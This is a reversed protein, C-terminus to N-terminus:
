QEAARRIPVVSTTAVRRKVAHEPPVSSVIVAGSAVQVGEGIVVHPEIFIGTGLRARDGITVLGSTMCGPGTAIDSGLVNHHDFSNYASLFNNDGVRTGVGFHCFACILNGHGLAVEPAIVATRDVANTLPIGLEGCLERLRTRAPVSTGICILASDLRGGAHLESLRQPGGVVPVGAVELGWTARDEDVIAVATQSTGTFIGIAQTAGLGAGILAVREAGIPADLPAPLNRPSPEAPRGRAGAEEVMKVTILGRGALPTLDIGLEEARRIAPATARVGDVKTSAAQAAADARRAAFGDLADLSEFLYAVAGSLLIEDGERACRLLYGAEPAVVDVVAKSTEVEALLDGAEVRTRDEFHWATVVATESNVDTTPVMVATEPAARDAGEQRRSGNADVENRM